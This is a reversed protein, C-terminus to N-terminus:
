DLIRVELEKEKFPYPGATEAPDDVDEESYESSDNLQLQPAEVESDEEEEVEIIRRQVKRRKATTGRKNKKEELKKKREENKKKKEEKARLDQLAEDNETM